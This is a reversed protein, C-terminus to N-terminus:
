EIAKIFLFVMLLGIPLWLMFDNGTRSFQLAWLEGIVFVLLLFILFAVFIDTATKIAGNIVKNISKSLVM